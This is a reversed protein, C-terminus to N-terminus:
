QVCGAHAHTLEELFRDPEIGGGDDQHVVVGEPSGDGEATIHLFFDLPTDPLPCTRGRRWGTEPLKEPLYPDSAETSGSGNTILAVNRLLKSRTIACALGCSASPYRSFRCRHM